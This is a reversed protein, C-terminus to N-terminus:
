YNGWPGFEPPKAFVIRELHPRVAVPMQEAQIQKPLEGSIGFYRAFHAHSATISVNGGVVAGVEFGARGLAKVAAQVNGLAIPTLVAQASVTQPAPEKRM